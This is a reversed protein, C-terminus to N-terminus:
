QHVEEAKPMIYFGNQISMTEIVGVHEVYNQSCMNCQMFTEVIALLVDKAEEDSGYRGLIVDIEVTPDGHIVKKQFVHVGNIDFPVVTEMDQSVIMLM